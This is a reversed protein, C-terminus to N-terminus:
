FQILTGFTVLYFFLFFISHIQPSTYYVAWHERGGQAPSLQLGIYVFWREIGVWLMSQLCVYQMVASSGRILPYSLTPYISACLVFNGWYM